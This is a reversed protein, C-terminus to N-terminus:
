AANTRAKKLGQNLTPYAVGLRRAAEFMNGGARARTAEIACVKVRAMYKKLTEAPRLRLVDAPLAIEGHKEVLHLQGAPSEPSSEPEFTQHSDPAQQHLTRQVDELTIPAGEEAYAALKAVVNHLQRINGPWEYRCLAEVAAAEIELDNELRLLQQEKELRRAILLPIDDPRERLPTTRIELVELRYYLDERFTGDRMMERLNQSTAALLRANCRVARTAGLRRVSKEELAKLLKAQMAPTLEGIEDLFLTGGDAEEFQGRKSNVAGTFAGREYGFLESELLAEPIAACNVEVFPRNGRESREHIHRAATTKGTGTEGTILVSHPSKAARSIQRDLARGAASHSVLSGDGPDPAENEAAGSKWLRRECLESRLVALQAVAEVERVLHPPMEGACTIGLRTQGGPIVAEITQRPWNAAREDVSYSRELVRGVACRVTASEVEAGLQQVIELARDLAEATTEAAALAALQPMQAGGNAGFQAQGLSADRTQQPM